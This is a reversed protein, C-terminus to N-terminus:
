EATGNEQGPFAAFREKASQERPFDTPHLASGCSVASRRVNVSAVTKTVGLVLFLLALLGLAYAVHRPKVAGEGGDM